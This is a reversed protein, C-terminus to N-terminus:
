EATHRKLLRVTTECNEVSVALYKEAIYGEIRYTKCGETQTNSKSFNISAKQLLTQFQLSDMPQGDWRIGATNDFQKKQLDALVRATPGYNCSTKKGSFVFSVIIIGMSLGVMYYGIRHLLKM